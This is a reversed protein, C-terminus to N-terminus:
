NRCPCLARWEFPFVPSGIFGNEPHLDNLFFFIPMQGDKIILDGALDGLPRPPGVKNAASNYNM